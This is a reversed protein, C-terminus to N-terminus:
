ISLNQQSKQLDPYNLTSINQNKENCWEIARLPTNQYDLLGDRLSLAKIAETFLPM